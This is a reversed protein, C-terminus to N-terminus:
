RLIDLLASRIGKSFHHYRLTSLEKLVLPVRKYRKETIRGRVRYHAILQQLMRVRADFLTSVDDARARINELKLRIDELRSVEETYYRARGTTTEDAPELSARKNLILAIGSQQGSHQRYKILQDPLAVVLDAFAAVVIAIWGDHLLWDDDPIPLALKKFRSRLAMTAGTVVNRRILVSFAQGDKVLRQEEPTFTWDWLSSGLPRLDQDVMEADTFLLGVNPSRAFVEEVCELKRLDWVDDQDALAIIEGECLNIAKEFNRTSGLNSANEQIRVPFSTSQAFRRLIQLTGDSSRDDCVVLEDPPRTQSAISELQESLYQEGNYTCLALSIKM